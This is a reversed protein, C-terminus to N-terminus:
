DLEALLNKQAQTNLPIPSVLIFNGNAKDANIKVLNKRGNGFHSIHKFANEVFPMLLLPEILFGKVNESCDFEVAYNEEKRLKQLDVYDQLYSIEKEVPIKRWENMYNTGCCILFNICLRGQM